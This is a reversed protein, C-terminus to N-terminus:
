LVNGIGEPEQTNGIRFRQYGLSPSGHYGLITMYRSSHSSSYFHLNIKAPLILGANRVCYATWLMAQSRCREEKNALVECRDQDKGVEKGSLM